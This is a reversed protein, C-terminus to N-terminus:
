DSPLLLFIPYRNHASAVQQARLGLALWVNLTAPINSYFQIYMIRLGYNTILFVATSYRYTGGSHRRLLYAEAFAPFVVSIIM